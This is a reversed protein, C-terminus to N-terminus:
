AAAAVEAELRRGPVPVEDVHHPQEQEGEEVDGEAGAPALSGARHRVARRRCRRGEDGPREPRQGFQPSPGSNSPKRFTAGRQAAHPKSRACASEPSPGATNTIKMAPKMAANPMRKVSITKAGASRPPTRPRAAPRRAARGPGAAAASPGSSRRGTRWGPRRLRVAHRRLPRAEREAEGEGGDTTKAM